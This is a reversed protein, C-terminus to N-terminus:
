SVFKEVPFHRRHDLSSLGQRLHGVIETLGAQFKDDRHLEKEPLTGAKYIKLSATVSFFAFASKGPFVRRYRHTPEANRTCERPRM